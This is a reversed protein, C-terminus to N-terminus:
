EQIITKIVKAPVGAIMSNEPIDSDRICMQIHILSLTQKTEIDQFTISVNGSSNAETLQYDDRSTVELNLNVGEDFYNGYLTLTLKEESDIAESLPELGSAHVNMPLQVLTLVMIFALAVSIVKKM